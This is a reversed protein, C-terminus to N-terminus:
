LQRSETQHKIARYDNLERRRWKGEKGLGEDLGRGGIDVSPSGDRKNEAYKKRLGSLSRKKILPSEVM